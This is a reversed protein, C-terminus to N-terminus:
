NINFNHFLPKFSHNLTERMFVESTEKSSSDANKFSNRSEIVFVNLDRRM